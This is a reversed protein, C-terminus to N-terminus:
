DIYIYGPHLSVFHLFRRTSYGANRLAQMRALSAEELM